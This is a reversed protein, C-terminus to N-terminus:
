YIEKIYKKIEESLEYRELYAVYGWDVPPKLGRDKSHMLWLVKTKIPKTPKDAWGDTFIVLGDAKFKDAYDVIEQFDTGGRGNVKFSDKARRFDKEIITIKTDFLIYTIEAHGCISNMVSLGEAIDEDSMSGSCDVAFIISTDYDRRSGPLSLDYRRNVKMRSAYRRMSLVSKNFRRVIEKWSIKPTHAALIDEYMDGTVTGWQKSSNKNNEVLTKVDAELLQNEGWDQNNTSNPDYYEKMAENNNNYTQFGDEDKNEKGKGKGEEKKNKNNKANQMAKDILEQKEEDSMSNWIKKIQENVDDQKDMLRRFYEEFCQNEPLDFTEPKPYFNEMNQNKLINGLSFPVVTISSSLASINRPRCLRTTPHKLLIKLGEQALVCELREQSLVNIFNPNYKIIPPKSKTDVGITKQDKSPVKKFLTHAELMMPDEMFWKLLIKELRSEAKHLNKYYNDSFGVEKNEDKKDM